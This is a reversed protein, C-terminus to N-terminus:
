VAAPPDDAERSGVPHPAQGPRVANFEHPSRDTEVVQAAIDRLKTNLRQSTTVLMAFAERPGIKYREMLIGTAEGIRQRSLLGAQLSDVLTGHSLALAAHGAFLGAARVSDAGFAGPAEACLSLSGLRERDDWLRCVLVSRIGLGAAADRFAPWRRSGTATDEIHLVQGAADAADGPPPTCAVAPGDGARVQAEDLLRAPHGAHALIEWRSPRRRAAVSASEAGPVGAVAHEAIAGLVREPPRRLQLTRILALGTAVLDPADDAM